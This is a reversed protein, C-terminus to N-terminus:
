EASAIIDTDSAYRPSLDAWLMRSLSDVSETRGTQIWNTITAAVDPYLLPTPNPAGLWATIIEPNFDDMQEGMGLRTLAAANSWQEMQGKLPKVLIKKGYQLAESALEFGSNSIVGECCALDKQFTERSFPKLTINGIEKRADTACYVWFRYNSFPKLLGIVENTDEFPLYILIAGQEITAPANPREILPPLIPSNFHDWHLGIQTKAPAFLRIIASALPNDKAKPINHLFAYQHGIAVSPRKQIKAAWATVPEFDTLVLDYPRLDLTRVDHVFRVMNNNLVTNLYQIRGAKIAFTLGSLCRFDGFPEMSFLEERPRGSFLYDVEIGAAALAPVMTRARTIHGNGTAQVGYLIRM